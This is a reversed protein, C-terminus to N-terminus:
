QVRHLVAITVDDAISGDAYTNVAELLHLLLGHADAPADQLAELVGEEGFLAQGARAETVGDTVALLTGGVQLEGTDTRWTGPLPGLIPGTVDLRHLAEGDRIIGAPHGANAWRVAGTRTDLDVLLCTLFQEDVDDLADALWGLVEGPADNLRMAARLLHKVRLAFVGAEPGHGAVDVVVLAVRGDGRDVYDYWDGALVGSAPQLTAAIVVSDPMEAETPRLEARLTVVAPGQQELAERAANAEDLLAVIQARMADVERAHAAMDPPGVEPIREHLAGGAVETAAASIQALPRTVWRRLLRVVGYASLASVVVLTSVLATTAARADASREAAQREVALMQLRLAAAEDRFADFRIRGVQVLAAAEAFRGEEALALEPEAADQQWGRAAQVALDLQAGLGPAAGILEELEAVATDVRRAGSGYPELFVPDQTLLYGRVGSEQDIMGNLLENVALRAPTIRDDLDAVAADREQVVTGATLAMVLVVLTFGLALLDVRRPLTLWARM